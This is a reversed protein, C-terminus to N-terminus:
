KTDIIRKRYHVNLVRIAVPWLQDGYGVLIHMENPKCFQRLWDTEKSEGSIMPTGFAESKAIFIM